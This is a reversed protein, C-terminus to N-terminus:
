KNEGIVKGAITVDWDPEKFAKIYSIPDGSALRKEHGLAYNITIDQRKQGILDPEFDIQFILTMKIRPRAMKKDM